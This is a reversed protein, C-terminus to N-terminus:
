GTTVMAIEEIRERAVPVIAVEEEEPKVDGNM